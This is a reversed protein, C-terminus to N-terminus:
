RFLGKLGENLEIKPSWDLEQKILSLDTVYNMPVPNSLQISEDIVAQLGSAEELLEILRKLSVANEAGGGINYRGNRIVSDGFAECARAYDEVALLDRVPRGEGPLRVREGRNIADAYAGVFNPVNGASNPAYIASMRFICSRFGRTAAYFEVYREAILKSWELASQGSFATSCSESVEGQNDAFRGYVDKTSAFICAANPRVNKLVNITGQVNTEFVEDAAEPSKDMLAALHIVLDYEKVAKVDEESLVSMGSRRSLDDANFYKKIHTGLYGSGGTVLTKM